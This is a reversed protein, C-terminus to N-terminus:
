HDWTEHALPMANLLRRTAQWQPLHRDMIAIFRDDHHRSLLHALEHIIIYELCPAPKKALELNFWLRRTVPNCGGWKTKMKKVGWAAPEVGLRAQWKALLPPILAKLKGRYWEALLRERQDATTGPRVLFTAKAHGRLTLRPPGDHEVVNLRYRRGLIYHTEGSVVDRKSQRPQAAFRARQRRIWALKGIVAMRVAEDSVALPAAVRVRGHPPYVGLHLNKIGKRVVEVSLGAVTLQRTETSM